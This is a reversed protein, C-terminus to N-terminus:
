GLASAGVGGLEPPTKSEGGTVFRVSVACIRAARGPRRDAGIEFTVRDGIRPEGECETRHVFVDREGTNPRIFGYNGSWYIVRGHERNEDNM